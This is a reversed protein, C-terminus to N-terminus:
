SFSEGLDAAPSIKMTTPVSTMIIEYFNRSEMKYLAFGCERLLEAESFHPKQMIFIGRVM